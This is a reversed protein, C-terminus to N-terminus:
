FWRKDGGIKRKEKVVVRVDTKAEKKKPM